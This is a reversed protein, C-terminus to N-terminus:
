LWLANISLLKFGKGPSVLVCDWTQVSCLGGSCLGELCAFLAVAGWALFCIALPLQWLTPGGLQWRFPSSLVYAEGWPNQSWLVISWSPVEPTVSGVGRRKCILFWFHLFPHRMELCLAAFSLASVCVRTEQSRMYYVNNRTPLDLFFCTVTNKKNCYFIYLM